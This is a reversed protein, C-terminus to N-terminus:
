QVEPSRFILPLFRDRVTGHIPGLYNILSVDKSCKWASGHPHPTGTALFELRVIKPCNLEGNPSTPWASTFFCTELLGPPLFCSSVHLAKEHPSSEPKPQRPTQTRFCWLKPEPHWAREM